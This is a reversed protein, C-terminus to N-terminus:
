LGKLVQKWWPLRRTWRWDVAKVVQNWTEKDLFVPGQLPGGENQYCIQIVPKQSPGSDDWTPRVGIWLTQQDDHVTFDSSLGGDDILM